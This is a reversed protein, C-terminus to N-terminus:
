KAILEGAPTAPLPVLGTQLCWACFHRWDGAYARRTERADARAIYGLADRLARDGEPTPRDLVAVATAPVLAASM